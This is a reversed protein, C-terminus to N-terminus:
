ARRILQVIDSNLLVWVRQLCIAAFYLVMSNTMMRTVRNALAGRSRRRRESAPYLSGMAQAGRIEQEAMSAVGTHLPTATTNVYTTTSKV